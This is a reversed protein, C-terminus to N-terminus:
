NAARYGRTGVRKVQQAQQQLQTPPYLPQVTSTGQIVPPEGEEFEENAYELAAITNDNVRLVQKTKIENGGRMVTVWVYRYQEIEDAMKDIGPAGEVLLIGPSDPEAYTGTPVDLIDERFSPVRGGPFDYWLPELLDIRHLRPPGEAGGNGGKAISYGMRGALYGQNPDVRGRTTHYKQKMQGIVRTLTRGGDDDVKTWVERVWRRRYQDVSMVVVACEHDRGYDVGVITTTFWLGDELPRIHIDRGFTPYIMDQMGVREGLVFRQYRIGTMRRLRALYKAGEETTTVGDREFYAPNDQLRTRILRTDGRDTRQMLWHQRFTPNCDAIIRRHLFRNGEADVPDDEPKGGRLRGTLTEWDDETLETAENVYIVDYFSSLVKQANDIGGVVIQSGNRYRFAAPEATSGGFYYTGDGPKLVHLKFEKICSTAMSAGVKRLMLVQLGAYTHCLINILKLCTHTKGTGAPGECLIEDDRAGLLEANGGRVEFPVMRADPPLAFPVSTM